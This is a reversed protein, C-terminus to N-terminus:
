PASSWARASRGSRAAESLVEQESSGGSVLEGPNAGKGSAIDTDTRHVEALLVVPEM